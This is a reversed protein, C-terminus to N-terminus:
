WCAIHRRQMWWCSNASPSPGSVEHVPWLRFSKVPGDEEERRKVRAATDPFGPGAESMGSKNENLAVEVLAKIYTKVEFNPPQNCFEVEVHGRFLYENQM